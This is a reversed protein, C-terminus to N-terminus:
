ARRTVYSPMWARGYWCSVAEGLRQLQVGRREEALVVTLDTLQTDVDDPKGLVTRQAETLPAKADAERSPGHSALALSLERLQLGRRAM